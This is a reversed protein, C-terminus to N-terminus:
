LGQEGKVASTKRPGLLTPSRQSREGSELGPVPVSTPAPHGAGLPLSGDPEPRLCRARELGNGKEATEFM